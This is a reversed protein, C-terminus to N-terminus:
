CTNVKAVTNVKSAINAKSVISAIKAASVLMMNKIAVSALMKTLMPNM